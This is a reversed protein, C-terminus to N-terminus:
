FGNVCEIVYAIEEETMGPYLPLSLEQACIKEAIPFDGERYGLDKYADQLHIAKPYHILTHVGKELLYAQLEDRQECFIPFIHYVNSEM